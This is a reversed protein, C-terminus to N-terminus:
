TFALSPVPSTMGSKMDFWKKEGHKTGLSIAKYIAKIKDEFVERHILLTFICGDDASYKWAREYNHVFERSILRSILGQLAINWRRPLFYACNVYRPLNSTRRQVVLSVFHFFARFTCRPTVDLLLALLLMSRLHFALANAHGPHKTSTILPQSPVAVSWGPHVRKGPPKIVHGNHFIEVRPSRGFYLWREIYSYVSTATDAWKLMPEIELLCTCALWSSFGSM